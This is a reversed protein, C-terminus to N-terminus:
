FWMRAAISDLFGDAAREVDPLGMTRADHWVWRGIREASVPDSSWLALADDLDGWLRDEDLARRGSRYPHLPQPPVLCLYPVPSM